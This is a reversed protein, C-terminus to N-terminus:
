GHAEAESLMAIGQGTATYRRLQALIVLLRAREHGLTEVRTTKGIGVQGSVLVVRGEGTLASALERRLLAQERTRGVLGSPTRVHNFALQRM